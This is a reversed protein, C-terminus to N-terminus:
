TPVSGCTRNACIPLVGVVGTLAAICPHMPRGGSMMSRSPKAAASEADIQEVTMGQALKEQREQREQRRRRQRLLQAAVFPVYFFIMIIWWINSASVLEATENCCNAVGAACTSTNFICVPEAIGPVAVQFGQMITDGSANKYEYPFRLMDTPDFTCTM